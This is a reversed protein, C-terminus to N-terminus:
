RADETRHLPRGHADARSVPVLRDHQLLALGAETLRV